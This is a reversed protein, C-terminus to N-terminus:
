VVDLQLKETPAMVKAEGEVVVEDRQNKVSCALTIIPKEAHKHTVELTVTLTDAVKVPRKFNLIQSLYISGPGPLKTAIAASIISGSWMGHAIREGFRTTKAYAEDLHLPNSDGSTKAFLFLDEEMLQKQFFAQQGVIIESFIINTLMM